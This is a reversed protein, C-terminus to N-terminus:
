QKREILEATHEFPGESGYGLTRQTYRVIDTTKVTFHLIEGIGSPPMTREIKLVEGEIDFLDSASPSFLAKDGAQIQTLPITKM